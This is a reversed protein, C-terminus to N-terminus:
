LLRGQPDKKFEFRVTKVKRGAKIPRWDILWGDKEQLDKVAPEILKTRIKGFDARQKDTAEMSEAFDEITYEAWGTSEFRQLLELLKWSSATRLGSVQRLQYRTFQGQLATLHPVLDPWWRLEVWGEGVHYKVAGVWRMQVRTPELPRGKRRHAAEYFTISRSYLSKAAAQLQEYATDMSVDFLEAYESATLNTVLIGGAPLRRSDLKSLAAFVLRKEMMSLGHAARTLANSMSVWRAGVPRELAEIDYKEAKKALAAKRAM